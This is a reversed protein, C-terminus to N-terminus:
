TVEESDYFAICNKAQRESTKSGFAVLSDPLGFRGTSFSCRSPGSLLAQGAVGGPNELEPGRRVAATDSAWLPLVEGFKQCV